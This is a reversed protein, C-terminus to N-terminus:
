SVNLGYLRACCRINKESIEFYNKNIKFNKIIKDNHKYIM